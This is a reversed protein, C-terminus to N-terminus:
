NESLIITKSAGVRGDQGLLTVFYVGNELAGLDVQNGVAQQELRLRGLADFVRVTVPNNEPVGSWYIIGTTPNPWLTVDGGGKSPAPPLSTTQEVWVTKCKTDSGYQNSVTLCVEYPGAAPYTHAPHKETSTNASGGGPDGFDWWWDTPEYWSVSTFDVGLGPTRDYRWNALPHNDIGLTDCPSNDIPGLRFNPFHPLNKFAFGFNYYQHEYACAPGPREPRALRHMCRQGSLPHCYIRGDPGLEMFGISHGLPCDPDTEWQAIEQMSAAIDPALLDFQLLRKVEAAYIYRGEASFALGASFEDENGEVAIHVPNSLTGTCRDFDFIRLDDRTNFRALKTGDPSFVIEGGAESWTPAGIQQERISIGFPSLLLLYYTNTNTKATIIWWDRGNAHRVAHLADPHLTDQVLPQNKFLVKGQGNNYSMDIKTYFLVDRFAVLPQITFYTRTHFLYYISPSDPAPLLVMNNRSNYSFSYPGKCNNDYVAGPNLGESNEVIGEEGNEIYCGNSLLLLNGSSDCISAYSEKLQM